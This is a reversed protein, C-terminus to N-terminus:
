APGTSTFSRQIEICRRCQEIVLGTDGECKSYWKARIIHNEFSIKDVGVLDKPWRVLWSSYLHEREQFIKLANKLKCSTHLFCSPTDEANGHAIAHVLLARQEVFHFGSIDTPLRLNWPNEGKRCIRYVYYGKAQEVAVTAGTPRQQPCLLPYVPAPPLQVPQCKIAGGIM